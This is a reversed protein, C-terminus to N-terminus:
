DIWMELFQCILENFSIGTKKCKKQAEEYVSSKLLLGVRKDKIEKTPPTFQLLDKITGTEKLTSNKKTKAITTTETAKVEKETATETKIKNEVVEKKNEEHQQAAEKVNEIKEVASKNEEIKPETTPFMLTTDYGEKRAM